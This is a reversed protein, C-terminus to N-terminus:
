ERWNTFYTDLYLTKKKGYEDWSVISIVKKESSSLSSIEIQRTYKDIKEIDPVMEWKGSIKSLGYQGDVLNEFGSDRINRVAEIGEESLYIAIGRNSLGDQNQRNFIIVGAFAVFFLALVSVALIVELAIFGSRKKNIIKM